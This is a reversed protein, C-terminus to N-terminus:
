GNDLRGQRHAEILAALEELEADSIADASADLLNAVAAPTSGRFFTDTIRNFDRKAAVSAEVSPRYVYKGNDDRFSVRHKDVLTRLVTRVTANSLNDDLATQIEVASAEGLAYLRDLVDRERQTLGRLSGKRRGRGM